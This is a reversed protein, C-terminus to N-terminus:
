SSRTQSVPWSGAQDQRSWTLNCEQCSLYVLQNSGYHLSHTIKILLARKILNFVTINLLCNNINGFKQLLTIDFNHVYAFYIQEFSFFFIIKKKSHSKRIKTQFRNQSVTYQNPKRSCYYNNSIRLVFSFFEM